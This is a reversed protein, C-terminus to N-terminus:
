MVTCCHYGMGTALLTATSWLLWFQPTKLLNDVPVNGVAAGGGSSAAPPTYGAPLYGTPPRKIMLSSLFIASFYVAGMTALGAAVGTNGSGVLYWGESLDPYPLKALDSTTAYVVEQLEGGAGRVYQRGQEVVTDM